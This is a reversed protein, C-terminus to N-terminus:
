RQGQTRPGITPSTGTFGTPSQDIGLKARGARVEDLRHRFKSYLRTHRSEPRLPEGDIFLALVPTTPQLLHGATVVLNARKGTELSGVQDAVGLIQAPTLTVSKIAVDEPLGFAVAMAAEFPLNRAATENSSNGGKSHIAVTVGAARLKAPNAYQADYPDHDHGPLKLTGGVLVPVKAQKLADAVKWAESGGSIVGKLKLTRILELADLIEVQQDAHMIVPKQGRAFPALAELRPDPTPPAEGRDHAKAVVTDYAIAKVFLEKIKELREKRRERAENAGGGPGQGPRELGPGPRRTEATRSIYTPITVELAVQDAIVLERPVWGNLDILCGQGSITGGTPEVLSTLIGNARTVPIHESDAHLATSSRLEPQFQAADASDQTEALSGVEFLGITSGADVMGPWIDLGSMDVTQAEPPIPTGAPGVAAIKGGVIVLTGGTIEPGSVPHLNAGVLAFLNKPQAAIEISRNRASESAVPMATHDGPRVGFGGGPERRQFYAEGDILALECRAFADFPHGNFLVIDADKGVEISGLRGDLGLERAPNITIMALAQSESVGGYKVMKAAELNLHRMLEADDSKICVSAGAETLLAANQPIADYAEIKYAWWDSFTSASAGHAAIEAAVKYGELVHQLSQVRVGYKQATRLLMLIEDSRYCHSHIKISGDLIGALAELRLDVRPPPGLKSPETTKQTKKYEDWTARYSKGEEFAKEIVAEVGMRTNPFRGRSRTVNEGLAFKVGQPGERIILDRGPKGYRLKIVADQGGITNASGHLLRATTTGGAIARYIGIEDGTVVDKVRVEPVVSLTGENVGGQVAIHSHTDIIGPMAVLGAADIVTVGEPPTLGTGVAKIKGDKILISGKAITGKTVTLITPGKIFVNGGTHLAPKRDEDFETAVDVFPPAPPQTAATKATEGKSPESKKKQTDTGPASKLEATKTDPSKSDKSTPDSKAKPQDSKAHATGPDKDDSGKPSEAPKGKQDPRVPLNKREAPEPGDEDDPDVGRGGGAGRGGFRPRGGPEGGFALGDPGGGARSKTRARDEPKIEFKLGDILVYKVKAKEDNFPATMAILHGLKGPELTGLRADVGAVAAANKTLGALADDASLGAAILQRVVAPFTDIREIGETAFGFLVGAKALAAATAVQEKWKAKKYALVKLPEDREAAAKKRYEQETPVKPEEPFNLRIVVAVKASKLRDSVMAAEHGGVIVAGTGFESALDLARHIEDRTDSEWWVALKKNRAALLAKLAPDHPPRIGGHSEYYSELKQYHDADLMAQRFHAISGMLVRPYPNEGAGEAGGLGRRRGQGPGPTQGPVQGPPGPQGPTAAGAASPETPPALHVHLAIPGAVIAERRPLGSMSVLASQGTAIAGSPASLLDTFGLRRRPEVIAETLELSGAVDFEPTLGKRNDPPTTILPAEALDVPRGKGTASREAGARQGITTYLDIFGPYVVLGKGDITEADYPVTVDKTLGVAEILGRRVVITGPDISKGPATVIKAGTIAYASPYIGTGLSSQDDAAVTSWAAPLSLAAVCLLGFTVGLGQLVLSSRRLLGMTTKGRQNDTIWFPKKPTYQEIAVREGSGDLIADEPFPPAFEGARSGHSSNQHVAGIISGDNGSLVVGSERFVKEDFGM